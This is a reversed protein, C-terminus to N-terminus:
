RSSRGHSHRRRCAGILGATVFLTLAGPTPVHFFSVINQSGPINNAVFRLLMTGSIGTGDATAFQAILVQGNGAVFNPNFPDAQPQDPLIAWVAQTSSISTGALDPFGISLVVEDENQGPGAPGQGGDAVPVNLMKVGITVFTDFEAMGDFAVLTTLPATGGAFQHNYFTGGGEVQILLPSNETGAVAQMIDEGPRDFQAYVNCVLLGFENPKGVVTIGVFGAQVSGTLILPTATGALLRLTKSKM